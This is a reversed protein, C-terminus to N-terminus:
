NRLIIELIIMADGMTLHGHPNVIEGDLFGLFEAKLMNQQRAVTVTGMDAFSSNALTPHGTVRSRTRVEYLRVLSSIAAERTVTDAGPVLMGSNSLSSVQAATLDTNIAVSSQNRAIASIIRNIQWANIPNDEMFWDMDEFAIQSNVFYLADRVAPSTQGVQLPIGTAIATFDAPRTTAFNLTGAVNNFSTDVRRWNADDPTRTFAGINNDLMAAQNVNKAINLPAALTTLNIRNNAHNNATTVNIAINQPAVVYNQGSPLTPAEAATLDNIYIRVRSNVNFGANQPTNAFGPSLSYRTDGATISFSIGREDFATVISYPLEVVRNRVPLNNYHTMDIAYDFVRQQILRSIFRQDVLNDQNGNADVGTSRFRFLLTQTAATYIIEFDHMPLPFLEPIINGDYEGDDRSTHFIFTQTWDSMAMRTNAGHAIQAADPMVFVTIADLFNPNTAMEVIYNFRVDSVPGGAGDRHISYITRARVYHPRNAALGPFRVLYSHLISSSGLIETGMAGAQMDIPLNNDGVHPLWTIIMANPEVPALQRDNDVNIIHVDMQSAIGLGRPPSPVDIPTTNMTIPNSWLSPLDSGDLATGIARAWIYYTTDPFLQTAAFRRWTFGGDQRIVEPMAEFAWSTSFDPFESIRFEYELPPNSYPRLEFRLWIDGESHPRLIPVTPVVEIANRVDTTTGMLFTPWWANRQAAPAAPNFPRFFIAYSTNAQLGTITHSM